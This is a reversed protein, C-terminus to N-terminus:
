KKEEIFFSYICDKIRFIDNNSLYQHIGLHLGQRGIQEAVPFDGKKYGLFRFADHQTPLSGFLTKAEISWADLYDILMKNSIKKDKIVMPLGHPCNDKDDYLYIYEDLGSLLNLLSHMAIKRRNFTDDFNTIGEIGVAACLENIKFNLGLRQFDFEISGSPRGHSKISRLLKAYRDTNTVVMGGEGCVVPHAVYFSFCGLIGFSGVYKGKYRAGHAECCDEIVPLKYQEALGMIKDMDCAHGMLHVPMIGATKENICSEILNPNINLTDLEIDVFRPIFGASLVANATAVFTTAPIIIEDDRSAGMDYLCMMASICAGTGSSMAVAHKYGFHDAFLQEFEKTNQGESLWNKDLARNIRDRAIDGIKIEGFKITM